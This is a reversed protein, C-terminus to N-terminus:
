GVVKDNCNMVTKVKLRRLRRGSMRGKLEKRKRRGRRVERRRRRIKTKM